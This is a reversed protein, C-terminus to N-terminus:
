GLFSINRYPILKHLSLFWLLNAKRLALDFPIVHIYFEAKIANSSDQASQIRFRTQINMILFPNQQSKQM